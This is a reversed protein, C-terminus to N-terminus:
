CTTKQFRTCASNGMGIIAGGCGCGSGTGSGSGSASSSSNCSASSSALYRRNQGYEKGEQQQEGYATDM